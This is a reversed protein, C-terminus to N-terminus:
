APRVALDGGDGVALSVGGGLLDLLEAGVLERRWGNLVRGSPERGRRVDDVLRTLEPQTAILQVAVGSELSRHRVLASALAVAPAGRPDPAPASDATAPVERQAGREIAALLDRHRRHLTADPLGRIEGLADRTAPRRRALEVLVHDAMVSSVSRDAERAAADRWHVLELAVARATARLRDVKPLKRYADDLDREDSSSEVVRSEERAWEQRGKGALREELAGGLTLLHAADARAYEVQQETLPRRDWNTYAEGAPLEVGLVRRVLTKYSEQTGLGLFGAAVQTDFVNSVDTGWTRRLIAIDQRGAHVIVQVEPDALAAALPGPDPTDDALPDLVETRVGDPEAPDPVAVQTLCLMAQYRRESMFETDIALRGAERARRAIEEVV